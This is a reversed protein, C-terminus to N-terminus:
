FFTRYSKPFDHELPPPQQAFLASLLACRDPEADADCSAAQAQLESLPVRQYDRPRLAPSVFALPSAIEEAREEGQHCFGCTTLAEDYHVRHYPSAEDLEAEIPFEFEAKLSQDDPRAEGLELLPAGPGEPVVSLTLGPFFAFVRPSRRGQAPQASFVSDVAQLSLPRALADLFCPLAVPKPLANLLSVVDAVTTPSTTVGQPAICRADVRYPAASGASAGSSAGGDLMAGPEDRPPASPEDAGAGCGCLVATLIWGAPPRHRQSERRTV